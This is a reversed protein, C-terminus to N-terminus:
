AVWRVMWLHYCDEAAPQGLGWDIARVLRGRRPLHHPRKGATRLTGMINEHDHFGNSVCERSAPADGNAACPALALAHFGFAFAVVSALKVNLGQDPRTPRVERQRAEIAPEHARAALGLSHRNQKLRRCYRVRGPAAGTSRHYELRVCLPGGTRRPPLTHPAHTGSILRILIQLNRPAPFRTEIAWTTPAVCKGQTPAAISVWSASGGFDLEISSVTQTHGHIRRVHSPGAPPAPPSPARNCSGVIKPRTGAGL